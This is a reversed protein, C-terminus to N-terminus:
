KECGGGERQDQDGNRGVGGAVVTTAVVGTVGVATVGVIASMVTVVIVVVAVPVAVEGEAERESETAGVVVVVVIVGGIGIVRGDVARVIGGGVMVGGDVVGGMGM